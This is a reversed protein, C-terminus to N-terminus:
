WATKLIDRIDDLCKAHLNTGYSNALASIHNTHQSIDIDLAPARSFLSVLCDHYNNAVKFSLVAEDIYKIAWVANRLRSYDATSMVFARMESDGNLALFDSCPSGYVAYFNLSLYLGDRLCACASALTTLLEDSDESVSKLQKVKSAKSLRKIDATKLDTSSHLILFSTPWANTDTDSNAM